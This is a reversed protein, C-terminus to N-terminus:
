QLPVHRLRMGVVLQVRRGGVIGVPRLGAPEREGDGLAAERALEVGEEAGVLGAVSGINVIHGSRRDAMESAVERCVWICTMLNRDIVAKMDDVQIYLADNRQPRGGDEAGTGAAGIDGGACNVLIDIRGFKARIEAAARRVEQEQTLDGHVALTEVGSDAAIAAGVAALSEAENFARASIPTTGHVAVAAGLSALHGAVARGIGRSSGTVWAIKGTLHRNDPTM